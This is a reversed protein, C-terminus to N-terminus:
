TAMPPLWDSFTLNESVGPQRDREPSAWHELAERHCNRRQDECRLQILVERVTPVGVRRDSHEPVDPM